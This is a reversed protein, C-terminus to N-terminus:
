KCVALDVGLSEAAGKWNGGSVQVRNYWGSIHVLHGWPDKWYVGDSQHENTVSVGALRWCKMVQGDNRYQVVLWDAGFAEANWASCGRMQGACAGLAILGLLLAIRM